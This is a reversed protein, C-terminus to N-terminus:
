LSSRARIALRTVRSRLIVQMAALRCTRCAVLWRAPLGRCEVVAAIEQQVAIVVGGARGAVQAAIVLLVGAVPAMLMLLGPNNGLMALFPDGVDLVADAAVATRMTLCATFAFTAFPLILCKQEASFNM